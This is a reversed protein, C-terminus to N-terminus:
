KSEKTGEEFQKIIEENTAGLNKLLFQVDDAFDDEPYKSLFEEYLGKARDVQKLDNDMTFAKLFLAQSAGKMNPFQQLIMDFYGIAKPYEKLTRATEGASLLKKVSEEDPSIMARIEAATQYDSIAQKNIQQGGTTSFFQGSLRSLSSDLGITASGLTKAVAGADLMGAHKSLTAKMQSLIDSTNQGEKPNLLGNQYAVLLSTLAEKSPTNEMAAALGPIPNSETKCMTFGLFMILAFLFIRNM